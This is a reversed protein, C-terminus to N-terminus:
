EGGRRQPRRPHLPRLLLLLLLLLHLLLHLLLLLLLHLHLLLHLCLLLHLLLLLHLRLLHLHLLLHPVRGRGALEAMQPPLLHLLLLLLGHLAHHPGDGLGAGGGWKSTLLSPYTM